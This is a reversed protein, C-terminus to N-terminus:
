EVLVFGAWLFPDKYKLQMDKQASRFADPISMKDELWYAYFTTMLEQTQFDPVQWLSMILYRAGAIKFARQLGYVGENGQIDGLGTECASLVVLETHQLNTQSIEFATLIGDEMGPRFPHGHQWAYNGGSMILGSRIMPHESTKFISVAEGSNRTGAGPDPFFYGHTALHLIRPSASDNGLAKFSAETAASGKRLVPTMGAEQMLTATASIEVDTWKLYNWQGGRLTTDLASFDTGRSTHVPNDLGAVATSDLDYRIGGYLLPAGGGPSVPHSVVLQRASGLEVLRFRDAVRADPTSIPIAGLNLRHMLGSPSFYITQVGGLAEELPKWILQYLAKGGAGSYLSQIYEPKPTGKTQLLANFQKEEFLPIFSPAQGGPRLVMAAYLVSDTPRPNVYKYHVFEIVAEGPQLQAQLEQWTVQQLAEGFGAISKTLDKELHNAKEELAAVGSQAAPLKSYEIALLRECAKLSEFKSASLSDSLALTQFQSLANLLFGKYFLIQDFCTGDPDGHQRAFSFGEDLGDQFKSIYDSLEETSLYHAALFLQKREIEAMERGYRAAMSDQGMSWYLAWLKHLSWAYSPHNQGLTREWLDHAELFLPEAERYQGHYWYFNGLNGLSWGYDPHNKGLIQERIAKVELFYTEAKKLDKLYDDYLVALGELTYAYENNFKGLAKEQIGLAELYLAEAKKYQGLQTCLVAQSRLIGAYYPHQKGLAKARLRAAESYCAEAKELQNMGHYMSGLSEANWGSFENEKGLAKEWIDKAELFLPEAKDFDRTGTYLVALNQLTIAYDPHSSGLVKKRISAAELYWIEAEAVQGQYLLVKGQNDCATGYAASERGCKELAMAAAKRNIELAQDFKSEETLARSYQILSDIIPEFRASESQACLGATGLLSALCFLIKM